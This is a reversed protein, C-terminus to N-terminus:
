PSVVCVRQKVKHQVEVCVWHDDENGKKCSVVRHLLEKTRRLSNHRPGNENARAATASASSGSVVKSSSPATSLTHPSHNYYRRALVEAPPAPSTPSPLLTTGQSSSAHSTPQSSNARPKKLRRGVELPVNFCIDRQVDRLTTWSSERQSQACDCERERERLTQPRYHQREESRPHDIEVYRSTSTTTVSFASSLNVDVLVPATGFTGRTVRQDEFFGEDTVTKSGASEPRGSPPEMYKLDYPRIDYPSMEDETQLPNSPRRTRMYYAQKGREVLEKMVSKRFPANILSALAMSSAAAPSDPATHIGPPVRLGGPTGTLGLCSRSDMATEADVLADRAYAFSDLGASQVPYGAAMAYRDITLVQSQTEADAVDYPSNNADKHGKDNGSDFLHAGSFTVMGEDPDWIAAFTLATHPPVLESWRREAHADIDKSNMSGSTSSAQSRSHTDRRSPQCLLPPQRGFVLIICLSSPRPTRRLPPRLSCRTHGACASSRSPYFLASLPLDININRRTTPPHAVVRGVREGSASRPTVDRRSWYVKAAQQRCETGHGGRRFDKRQSRLRRRGPGCTTRTCIDSASTLTCWLCM